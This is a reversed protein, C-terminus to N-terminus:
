STTATTVCGSLSFPLNKSYKDIDINSFTTSVPYSQKSGDMKTLNMTVDAISNLADNIHYEATIVAYGFEGANGNCSSFTMIGLVAAAAILFFRKM